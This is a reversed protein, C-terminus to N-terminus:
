TFCGVGQARAYAICAYHARAACTKGSRYLKLSLDIGHLVETEVPTGLNYAKTLGAMEIVPAASM